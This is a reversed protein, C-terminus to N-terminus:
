HCFEPIRSRQEKSKLFAICYILVYSISWHGLADVVLQFSELALAVAGLFIALVYLLLKPFDALAKLMKAVPLSRAAM